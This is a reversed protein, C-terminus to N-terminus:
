RRGREPRVRHLAESVPRNPPPISSTGSNPRPSGVTEISGRRRPAQALGVDAMPAGSWMAMANQESMEPFWDEFADFGAESTDHTATLVWAVTLVTISAVGGVGLAILEM